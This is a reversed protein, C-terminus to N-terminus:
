ADPPKEAPPHPSRPDLDGMRLGRQPADGFDRRLALSELIRGGMVRVSPHAGDLAPLEFADSSFRREAAVVALWDRVEPDVRSLQERPISVSVPQGGHAVATGGAPIHDGPFLGAHCRYRDTLNLLAVFLPRNGLNHM